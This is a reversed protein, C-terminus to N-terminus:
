NKLLCIGEGFAPAVGDELRRIFYGRVSCEFLRELFNFDLCRSLFLPPLLSTFRDLRLEHFFKVPVRCWPLRELALNSAIFFTDYHLTTSWCMTCSAGFLLVFLLVSGPPPLPSHLMSVMAVLRFNPTKSCSCIMSYFVIAEREKIGTSYQEILMSNHQHM